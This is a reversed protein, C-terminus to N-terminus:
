KLFFVFRQKKEKLLPLRIVNCGEFKDYIVEDDHNHFVHEDKENFEWRNTLITPQINNKKFHKAYAEARRSAM